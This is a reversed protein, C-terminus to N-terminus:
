LYFSEIQLGDTTEKVDNIDDIENDAEDMTEKGSNEKSISALFSTKQKKLLNLILM